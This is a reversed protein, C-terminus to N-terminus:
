RASAASEVSARALGHEGIGKARSLRGSKPAASPRLDANTDRGSRHRAHARSASTRGSTRRPDIPHGIQEVQGYRSRESWGILPWAIRFRGPANQGHEAMGYAFLDVSAATLMPCARNWRLLRLRASARARSCSYSERAM